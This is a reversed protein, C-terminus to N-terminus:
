IRLVPLRCPPPSLGQFVREVPPNVLDYPTVHYHGFDSATLQVPLKFKGSVLINTGLSCEECLDMDTSSNAQDREKEHCAGTPAAQGVNHRGNWTCELPCVVGNIGSAILLLSLLPVTIAM